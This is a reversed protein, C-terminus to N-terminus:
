SIRSSAGTRTTSTTSTAGGHFYLVRRRPLRRWRARMRFVPWGHRNERAVQVGRPLRGPPEITRPHAVLEALHREALDATRYDRNRQQLRLVVPVLRAPVIM